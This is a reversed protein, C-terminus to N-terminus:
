FKNALFLFCWELKSNVAKIHEM